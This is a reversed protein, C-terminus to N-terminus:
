KAAVAVNARDRLRYVFKLGSWIETVACVKVDVLGISLGAQQVVSETLDSPVGSSKKPWIAWIIGDPVIRTAVAAMQQRLDNLSMTFLLVVNLGRTNSGVVQVGQPLDGLDREFGEPARSILVKHGPKIGLKKILPTESYGAM